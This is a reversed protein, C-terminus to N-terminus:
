QDSHESRLEISTSIFRRSALWSLEVTSLSPCSLLSSPPAVMALLLISSPHSIFAADYMNVYIFICTYTDLILSVLKWWQVSIPVSTFQQEPCPYFLSNAFLFRNFPNNVQKRKIEFDNFTTIKKIIKESSPLRDSEQHSVLTAWSGTHMFIRITHPIIFNQFWSNFAYM